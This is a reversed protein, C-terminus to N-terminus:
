EEEEQEEECIHEDAYDFICNTRIGNEDCEYVAVVEDCLVCRLVMQGWGNNGGTYQTKWM